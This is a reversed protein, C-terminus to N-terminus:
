LLRTGGLVGTASFGPEEKQRPESFNLNVTQQFIFSFYPNSVTITVPLISPFDVTLLKFFESFLMKVQKEGIEFPLSMKIGSLLCSISIRIAM